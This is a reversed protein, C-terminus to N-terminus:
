FKGGIRLGWTRPQEASAAIVGASNVTGGNLRQNDEINFVYVSAFWREDATSLTVSANSVFNSESKIYALYDASSYSSGRYRTGAQLILRIAGIPITQQSNLNYSWKPSNFARKGSCDIRYVDINGGPTTQTTPAFGCTTNPPLGQNPAFYVFSDYKTDLYQINASLLTNRTVLLDADLDLGKITSDGINRTLFV